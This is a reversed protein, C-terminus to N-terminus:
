EGAAQQGLELLEEITLCDGLIETILSTDNQFDPDEGTLISNAFAERLRESNKFNEGLCEVKDEPLTVGDTAASAAFGAAFLEGFDICEYIADTIEAAEDSTLDPVAAKVNDSSAIDDPTIGANSLREAGLIGVIRDAACRADEDTIPSPDESESQQFAAVIADSYPEGEASDSASDSGGGCGAAVLALAGTLLLIPITKCTM